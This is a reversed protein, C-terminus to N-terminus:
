LRTCPADELLQEHVWCLEREISSLLDIKMPEPLVHWTYTEVELHATVEEQMAYRLVRVNEAQTSLLKDVQENFLPVHFHIRWEAQGGPLPSALAEDLDAFRRLDGSTRREVVQHLYIRDMFPALRQELEVQDTSEDLLVRLASSIQLRGIKIGENKLRKLSEVSDEFQIAMHCVDFCVQIHERLLDNAEMVSVKLREALASAAFERMPGRFFAVLEDTNEVLGNPEAEIDLHILKGTRQRLQVLEATLEALNSCLAPWAAAAADGIWPKYSLPITSVGGTADDPLLVSLSKVLDLTYQLRAASRWDPAFVDTKVVEGHFSGFPFGNMVAVYMGHQDLFGKFEQLNTGQVLEAAAVASLRLGLGFPAKPSLKAKLPVAFEGLSARVASWSEGAHINTCYTLDLEGPKIWM